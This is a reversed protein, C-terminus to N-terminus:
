IKLFVKSIEFFITLGCVDIVTSMLPASMVAPDKGLKSIILPALAGVVTAFIVVLTLASGIILAETPLLIPPLVLGRLFIFVGTILGMLFGVAFEKLMIKGIDRFHIEGTALGRIMLTSSQGGVNGGTQTIVLMFAGLFIATTTVTKYHNVVNTTITGLFLLIVIWVVRKKVQKFISTDLYRDIKGSMGGMKYIDETQEERIVDIVDDVTVIGLLKHATDVVPIAILDNKDLIKAVEEQDTDQHVTIVDSHMLESILQSDNATLLERISVVGLLRNVEDVVYIYYLTEVEKGNKRIFAVADKITKGAEMTLYRLTMLGAADDEDFRLLFVTEKKVEDSLNMWVIKRIEPSVAQVVDTIDDPEMELLLLQINQESLMKIILEQAISSLDNILIAKKEIDLLLFAKIQQEDSLIDWNDALDLLPVASLSDKIDESPFNELMEKLKLVADKM